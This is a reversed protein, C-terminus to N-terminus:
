REIDKAAATKAQHRRGRKPLDALTLTLGTEDSTIEVLDRLRGRLGLSSLTGALVGIGVGAEGAELRRITQVTVGARLAIDELTLRRRLRAAKLDDGLQRLESRISSPVKM